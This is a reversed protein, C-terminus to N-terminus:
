PYRRRNEQQKGNKLAEVTLVDGNFSSFGSLLLLVWTWSLCLLTPQAEAAVDSATGTLISGVLWHSCMPASFHVNVDEAQLLLAFVLLCHFPLM